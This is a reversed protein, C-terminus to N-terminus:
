RIAPTMATMAPKLTCVAGLVTMKSKEDPDPVTVIGAVGALATM